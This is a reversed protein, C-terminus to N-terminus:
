SGRTQQQLATMLVVTVIMALIARALMRPHTERMAIKALDSVLWFAALVAAILLLTAAADSGMIKTQQTAPLTALTWLGVPLQALSPAVAWRGGWVAVRVARKEEGTRGQRLALILLMVGAAAISALAVHVTISPAVGALMQQRFAAGSLRVGSVHGEDYLQAAVAFLPPFHYLLNTSSLMALIGRCAVAGAARESRAPLWFGWIVLLVLSFVAEIGAWHLKYSLPGLWLSRYAADWKLWGVILGLVAGALLGVVSWRALFKAAKSAAEDGSRGRWDLWAGLIPGGSAVNVCLLHVALLLIVAVETMAPM